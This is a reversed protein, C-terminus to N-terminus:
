VAGKFMNKGLNLTSEPVELNLLEYLKLIILFSEKRKKVTTRKAYLKSINTSYEKLFTKVFKESEARVNNYAKIHEYLKSIGIISLDKFSRAKKICQSVDTSISIVDQIRPDKLDPNSAYLKKIKSTLSLRTKKSAKYTNTLENKFAKYEPTNKFNTRM